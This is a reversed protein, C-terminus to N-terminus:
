GVKPTQDSFLNNLEKQQLELSTKVEEKSILPRKIITSTIEGSNDLFIDPKNILKLYERTEFRQTIEWREIASAGKRPDRQELRAKRIKPEAHVFLLFDINKVLITPVGELLIFGGDTPPTIIQHGTFEGNDKRNYVNHLVATEGNKLKAIAEEIKSFDWWNKQDSRKAWEEPSILKGEELWAARQNRSLCFFWDIDIKTVNEKKEFISESIKTKGAGAQGGIGIITTSNNKKFEDVIEHLNIETEAM